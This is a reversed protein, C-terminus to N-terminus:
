LQLGFTIPVFWQPAQGGRFMRFYDASLVLAPGGWKVLFSAGARAGLAAGSTGAQRDPLWSVTPGVRWTMASWSNHEIMQAAPSLTLASVPGVFQNSGCSPAFSPCPYAVIPAQPVHVYSVDLLFPARMSTVRVFASFGQDQLSTNRHDTYARGAGLAVALAPGQANSAVPVTSTALIAFVFSAHRM